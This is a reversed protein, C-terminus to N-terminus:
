VQTMATARVAVTEKPKPKTSQRFFLAAFGSAMTLSLLMSVLTHSFFHDGFLMKYVGLTWGLASVVKFIQYRHKHLTPLFALGYLAFGTSAHAAPFCKAPTLAQINDWLSLYPLSGNFITLHNPCSVHTVSKLLGITAPIFLITLMLYILEKKTLRAFFAHLHRHPKSSTATNTKATHGSKRLLLVGALYVFFLVLLWKPLQYFLFVFPQTNKQLLWHGNSYLMESIQIDFQSHELTLTAMITLCALKLSMKLRTNNDLTM